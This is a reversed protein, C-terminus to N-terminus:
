RVEELAALRERAYRDLRADLGGFRLARRYAEPAAAPQGASELAIALGAWWAGVAPEIELARRYAAASEAARGQRQYLAGLTALLQPDGTGAELLRVAADYDGQAVKLRALLGRM